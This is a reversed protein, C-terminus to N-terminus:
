KAKLYDTKHKFHQFDILFQTDHKPVLESVRRSKTVQAWIIETISSTSRKGRLNRQTRIITTSNWSKINKDKRQNAKIIKQNARQKWKEPM